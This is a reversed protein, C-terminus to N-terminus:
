SVCDRLERIDRSEGVARLTAPDGPDVSVPVLLKPSDLSPVISKRQEIVYVREVLVATTLRGSPVFTEHKQRPAPDDLSGEGSQHAAASEASIM